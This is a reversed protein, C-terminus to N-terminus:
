ANREREAAIEAADEQGYLLEDMSVGLVRARAAFTRLRPEYYGEEYRRIDDRETRRGLATCAAALEARSMEQAERYEQLREGWRETVRRGGSLAATPKANRAASAGVRCRRSCATWQGTRRSRTDVVGHGCRVCPEPAQAASRAVLEPSACEVGVVSVLTSRPQLPASPYPRITGVRFLEVYVTELDDLTRGCWGCLSGRNRAMQLRDIQEQTKAWREPISM